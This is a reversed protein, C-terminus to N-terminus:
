WGYQVLQHRTFLQSAAEPFSINNAVVQDLIYEVYDNNGEGLRYVGVKNYVRQQWDQFSCLPSEKHFFYYNAFYSSYFEYNTMDDTTEYQNLFYDFGHEKLEEPIQNWLTLLPGNDSSPAPLASSVAM